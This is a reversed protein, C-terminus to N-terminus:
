SGDLPKQIIHSCLVFICIGLLSLIAGMMLGPTKYEIVIEHEGADLHVGLFGSGLEIKDTIVGDAKITFGNNYPFALYLIGDNKVSIRGTFSNGDYEAFEMTEDLIRTKAQEYAARNFSYLKFYKEGCEDMAAGSYLIITIHQGSKVNGIASLYETLFYKGSVVEEGDAQVSVYQERNDSSYLYLEMDKDAVFDIHINPTFMDTQCRYLYYGEARNVIEMGYLNEETIDADIETFLPEDIGCGLSVFDNQNEVAKKDGSWNVIDRNLMFGMGALADAEYVHYIDNEELTHYGGWVGAENSLVYRVNYMLATLPTTGNYVYEVNDFHGMGMSGFAKIANGNVMSSYWNVETKPIYNEYLLATKREGNQLDLNDYVDLWESLKIEDTMRIDNTKDPMTYFANGLIECIWLGFIWGVLTGRKISKRKYLVFLITYSIIFTVFLLYAWPVIMNRNDILSIVFITVSVSAAAVINKLKLKDMNILVMYGMVLLIFTLIIAFRNGLGHPVTFGHFVYNLKLWNLGLVLLVITIFYKIKQKATPIESALFLVVLFIVITGCFSNHNFLYGCTITKLPYFSSIYEGISGWQAIGPQDLGNISPVSNLITCLAPILTVGAMMAALLSVGAFLLSKKGFDRFSNRNELLFYIVAFMCIYFAYYFNVILSVALCILYLKWDCKEVLREIGLAIMPLIIMGDLWIINHGYALVYGCFGYALSCVVSILTLQCKGLTCDSNRKNTHEFFYLASVSLCAAKVIIIIVLSLEVHHEGLIIAILNFPSMCYYIMNQYIGVGLGKDWIMMSKDSSHVWEILLHLMNNYQVNADYVLFSREGFPYANEIMLIMVYVMISALFIGIYLIWKTNKKM